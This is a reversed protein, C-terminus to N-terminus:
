QGRTSRAALALRGITWLIKAGAKMSGVITGSIKSKGVRRRYAVPVEVCRLGDRAAKAQMEVTWGYTPDSMSLGALADWAIARFPGLDTFSSEWRWRMLSCALRNGFVAQPTLAGAHVRGSRAGLIRSGIVMDANGRLIPELISQLDNPDDAGDADMFVVVKPPDSALAVLGALCARGYGRAAEAVVFAGAERAVQATPDTSGNDVVVVQRVSAGRLDRPVSRVVAGVVEAENLAPIVVAVALPRGAAADSAGM